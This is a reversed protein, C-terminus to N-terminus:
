AGLHVIRGIDKACVTSWATSKDTHCVNCANPIKLAHTTAPTVFHFSHSRVNVDAITQQIKPM